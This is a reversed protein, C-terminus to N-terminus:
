YEATEPVRNKHPFDAMLELAVGLKVLVGEAQAYEKMMLTKNFKRGKSTSGKQCFLEEQTYSISTLSQM